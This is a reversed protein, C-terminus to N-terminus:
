DNSVKDLDAVPFLSLCALPGTGNFSFILSSLCSLSSKKWKLVRGHCIYLDGFKNMKKETIKYFGIVTLNQIVFM